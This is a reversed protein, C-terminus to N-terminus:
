TFSTPEIWSLLSIVAIVGNAQKITFLFYHQLQIAVYYLKHSPHIEYEQLMTIDALRTSVYYLMCKPSPPVEGEWGGGLVMSVRLTHSQCLLIAEGLVGSLGNQEEGRSLFEIYNYISDQMGGDVYNHM